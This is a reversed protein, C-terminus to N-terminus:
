SAHYNNLEISDIYEALRIKWNEMAPIGEAMMRWNRASENKSTPATRSFANADAAEVQTQIKSLEVIASVYEHRTVWGDNVVNFLGSFDGNVLLLIRAVVDDVLTPSGVQTANAFMISGQAAHRQAEEIRRAVFNRRQDVHGGFLWGTRIVLNSQSAAIVANEGLLKAKHHHTTPCAEDYESYPSQKTEGYVGTSSIYVMKIKRRACAKALHDTLLYNSQYCADPDRECADVDTMAAAHILLDVGDLLGHNSNWLTSTLDARNFGIVEASQKQFYYKCASGLLGSSGTILVRM